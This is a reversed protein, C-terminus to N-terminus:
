LFHFLLQVVEGIKDPYMMRVHDVKVLHSFVYAAIPAVKDHAVPCVYVYRFASLIRKNFKKALLFFSSFSNVSLQGKEKERKKARLMETVWENEGIVEGGPWSSLPM